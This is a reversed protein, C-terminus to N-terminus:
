DFILKRYVREGFYKGTLYRLTLLYHKLWMKLWFFFGEKLYAQNYKNFLHKAGSIKKDFNVSIQNESRCEETLIEDVYDITYDRAMRIFLDYEQSSELEEDFGGIKELFNRRYLVTENGSLAYSRLLTKYVHGRLRNYKILDEGSRCDMTHCTVMGLNEKPFNRYLAVQRELKQPYLLDDDDLFNIFVGQAQQLGRNRSYCPGQNTSNQLYIVNPFDEIVEKMDTESADDVVIIEVNDITQEKVSTLARRLYEPRNHTPIIVSVVPKSESSIM